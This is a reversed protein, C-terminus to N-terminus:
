RAASRALRFPIWRQPTIRTDTSRTGLALPIRPLLLSRTQWGRTQARTSRGCGGVNDGRGAQHAAICNAVYDPYPKSHGDFRIMIEGRAAEIARNLGAPISRNANEVLRVDLEPHAKQFSAIVARTGDTSMGDAIVVEMEAHPFTQAHFANLMLLITSQENYCPVIVSVKPSM